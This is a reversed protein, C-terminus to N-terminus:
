QYAILTGNDLLILLTKNIAIPSLTAKYPLEFKKIEQGNQTSLLLGQKNSGIILLTDNVILPGAWLIKGQQKEQDVFHVLQQSWVIQGSEKMLCVLHNDNTLMFLYRGSIAPTRIGGLDRNWVSQGSRMDLASIRGSHSVLFVLNKDIIPRAKIHSLASVSDLQKNAQLTESWLPYGNEIRLAFVEGSSYPTVIVGAHVAPSAGGLLGASEVIGTHTWLLQGDKANFVELQNNITIVFIKGESVTPAARVPASTPFRWLINGTKADISLIEAHATTAYIKGQDYALGGGFPQSSSDAPICYTEWEKEGNQINIASVLGISDITYVHNGVAIPSNLLRHETSSGHGINKEWMLNFDPNLLLPPMVHRANGGAMPWTQNIEPADLKLSHDKLTDDVTYKETSLLVSERVGELPIKEKKGLFGDCGSLLIATFAIYGYYQRM